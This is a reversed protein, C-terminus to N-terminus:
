IQHFATKERDLLKKFLTIKKEYWELPKEITELQDRYAFFHQIMENAEHYYKELMYIQIINFILEADKNNIKFAQKLYQMGRERNGYRYESLGYCRIIEHNAGDTIDIAQKLYKRAEERHNKEMELVWKIYLGMPDNEKKTNLFDIAKDAKNIEKQQYHIDVIQMLGEENTPDKALISNVLKLAEWFKGESKLTEIQDILQEPIYTM